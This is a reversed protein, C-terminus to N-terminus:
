GPSTTSSRLHSALFAPMEEGPLPKAFHCGQGLECGLEELRALQEANEIGEATAKPSLARVFALTAHV